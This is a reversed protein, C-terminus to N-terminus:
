RRRERNRSQRELLRRPGRGGGWKNRAWTMTVAELEEAMGALHEPVVVDGVREELPEWARHMAKRVRGMDTSVEGPRTEEVKVLIYRFQREAM